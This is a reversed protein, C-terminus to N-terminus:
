VPVADPKTLPSVLERSVPLVSVKEVVSPLSGVLTPVWLRVPLM